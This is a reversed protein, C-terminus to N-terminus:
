SKYERLKQSAAKYEESEKPLTELIEDLIPKSHVYKSKALEFRDRGHEDKGSDGYYQLITCWADQHFDEPIIHRLGQAFKDYERSCAKKVLKEYKEYLEEKSPKTKLKTM